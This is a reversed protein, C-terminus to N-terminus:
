LRATSANFVQFRSFNFESLVCNMHSPDLCCSAFISVRYICISSRRMLNEVEAFFGPTVKSGSSPISRCTLLGQMDVVYCSAAEVLQSLQLGDLPRESHFGWLYQDMGEYWTAHVVAVTNEESGRVSDQLPQLGNEVRRGPQDRVCPFRVVDRRHEPILEM